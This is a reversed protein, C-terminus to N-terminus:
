RAVNQAQHIVYLASQRLMGTYYQRTYHLRLLFVMGHMEINKTSKTSIKERKSLHSLLLRTVRHPQMSFISRPTPSKPLGDDAKEEIKATPQASARAALLIKTAAIEKNELAHLVTTNIDAGESILTKVLETMGLKAALLLPTENQRVAAELEKPTASSLLAAVFPDDEVAPSEWDADDILLEGDDKSEVSPEATTSAPQASGGDDEQEDLSFQSPGRTSPAGYGTHKKAEADTGIELEIGDHDDALLPQDAGPMGFDSSSYIYKKLRVKKPPEQHTGSTHPSLSESSTLNRLPTTQPKKRLLERLAQM